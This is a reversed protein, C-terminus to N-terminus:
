GIGVIYSGVLIELLPHDSAGPRQGSRDFQTVVIGAPWVAVGPMGHTHAGREPLARDAHLVDARRRHKSEDGLRDDVDNELHRVGGVLRGVNSIELAGPVHQPNALRVPELVPQKISRTLVDVEM